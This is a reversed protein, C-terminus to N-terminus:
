TILISSGAVWKMFFHAEKEEVIEFGLRRYFEAMNGLKEAHLTVAVRSTRAESQIDRLLQSGIGHKRFKPMITIDMVRIEEPGRDVYLRGIPRRNKEIILFETNAYNTRFHQTQANFQMDIFQQKQEEPLPSVMVDIRTTAYLSRLFAADSMKESRLEISSDNM